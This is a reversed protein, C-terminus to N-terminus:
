CKLEWRRLNILFEEHKRKGVRIENVVYIETLSLSCSSAWCDNLSRWIDMSILQWKGGMGCVGWLKMLLARMTCSSKWAVLENFHSVYYRFPHFNFDLYVANRHFPLYHFHRQIIISAQIPFHWCYFACKWTSKQQNKLSLIPMISNKIAQFGDFNM